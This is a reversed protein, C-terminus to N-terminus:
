RVPEVRLEAPLVHRNGATLASRIEAAVDAAQGRLRSPPYHLVIIGHASMRSHRAMTRQWDDPSFHWERSDVEVAVCSDHWWADPSALFEAGLYLRPNYLPDPLRYRKILGRLDAEAASRVGEGVEKLTVRLM